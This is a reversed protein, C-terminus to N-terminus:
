PKSTNISDLLKKSPQFTVVKRRSIILKETTKPNRGSRAAKNKVKLKGFGSIKVPHETLLSEGMIDLISDVFNRMEKKSFGSDLNQLREALKQRTLSTNNEDTDITENTVSTASSETPPLNNPNM